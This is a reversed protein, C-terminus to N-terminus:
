NVKTKKLDNYTKNLRQVLAFSLEGEAGILWISGWDELDLGGM